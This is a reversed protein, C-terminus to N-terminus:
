WLIARRLRASCESHQACGGHANGFPPGQGTDYADALLEFHQDFRSKHWNESVALPGGTVIGCKEFRAQIIRVISCDLKLSVCRQHERCHSVVIERLEPPLKSLIEAACRVRYSLYARQIRVAAASKAAEPDGEPAM